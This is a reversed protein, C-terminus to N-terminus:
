SPREGPICAFIHRIQAPIGHMHTLDVLCVSPCAPGDRDSAKSSPLTRYFFTRGYPGMIMNCDSISLSSGLQLSSVIFKQASWHRKDIGPKFSILHRRSRIILHLFQRYAMGKQQYPECSYEHLRECPLLIFLYQLVTGTELLVM